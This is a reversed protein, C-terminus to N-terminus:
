KKLVRLVADVQGAAYSAARTAELIEDRAQKEISNMARVIANLRWLVFTAFMFGMLLNVKDPTIPGSILEWLWGMFWGMGLLIYGPPCSYGEFWAKYSPDRTSQCFVAAEASTSALLLVLLLKKMLWGVM